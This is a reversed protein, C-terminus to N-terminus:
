DPVEYPRRVVDPLEPLTQWDDPPSIGTEWVEIQIDVRQTKGEQVIGIERPFLHYPEGKGFYQYSVRIGKEARLSDPRGVLIRYWDGAFLPPFDPLPVVPNGEGEYLIKESLDLIRAKGGQFWAIVRTRGLLDWFQMRLQDPAQGWIEVGAKIFGRKSDVSVRGELRFSAPIPGAPFDYLPRLSPQPLTSCQILLVMCILPFIPRVWKM